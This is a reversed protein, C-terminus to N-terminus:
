TSYAHGPYIFVYQMHIMMDERICVGKGPRYARCGRGGVAAEGGDGGAGEWQCLAVGIAQQLRGTLVFVM